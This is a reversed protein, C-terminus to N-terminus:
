VILGAVPTVLERGSLIFVFASGDGVVGGHPIDIDINDAFM